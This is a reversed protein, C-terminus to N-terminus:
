PMPGGCGGLSDVLRPGAKASQAPPNLEDCNTGWSGGSGTGAIIGAETVSVFGERFSAGTGLVMGMGSCPSPVHFPPVVRGGGEVHVVCILMV